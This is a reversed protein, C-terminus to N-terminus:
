AFCGYFVAEELLKLAAQQQEQRASSAPRSTKWTVEWCLSKAGPPGQEKLRGDRRQSRGAGAPSLQRWSLHHTAHLTGGWGEPPAFSTQPTRPSRWASASCSVPAPIPPLNGCRRRISPCPRDRGSVSIREGPLFAAPCFSTPTGLSFLGNNLRSGGQCGQQAESQRWCRSWSAEPTAALPLVRRVSRPCRDRGAHPDSDSRPTRQRDQEAQAARGQEGSGNRGAAAPARPLERMWLERKRSSFEGQPKAPCTPCSIQPLLNVAQLECTINLGKGAKAPLGNGDRGM